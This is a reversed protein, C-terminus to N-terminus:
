DPTQKEETGSLSHHSHVESSLMGACVRRQVTANHSLESHECPPRSASVAGVSAVTSQLGGDGAASPPVPGRRRM